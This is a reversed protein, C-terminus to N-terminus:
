VLSAWFSPSFAALFCSIMHAVSRQSVTLHEPCSQLGVNLLDRDPGEPGEEERGMRMARSYEGADWLFILSEEITRMEEAGYEFRVYEGASM